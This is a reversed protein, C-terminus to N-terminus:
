SFQIGGKRAEQVLIGINRDIEAVRDKIKEVPGGSSMGRAAAVANFTSQVEIAGSVGGLSGLGALAEQAKAILADPAELGEPGADEAQAARKARAAALADQWERRAAALDAENEAMRSAYEDDLARHADLNQQGIQAMAGEHVAAARQREAQRKAERQATKRRREDDIRRIAAQKQREVYKNEAELDVSDDFLSKIWNWAEQAGSKIRGWPKGFFATFSAWTKSFFATTEIWGVELAHWATEAVAIQGHWADYGIRLFFNRFNLWAKELFNV